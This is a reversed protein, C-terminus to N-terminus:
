DDGDGVDPDDEDDGETEAYDSRYARLPDETAIKKMEAHIQVLRARGLDSIKIDDRRASEVEDELSMLFIKIPKIIKAISTVVRERPWLQGSELAFKMKLNQEEWYEKGMEQQSARDRQKAKMEREITERLNPEVVAEVAARFDYLHSGKRTGHPQLKGLRKTITDRHHGFVMALFNVTVGQNVETAFGTGPDYDWEEEDHGKEPESPKAEEKPAKKKGGEIATLKPKAPRGRRKPAKKEEEADARSKVEIGELEDDTDDSM